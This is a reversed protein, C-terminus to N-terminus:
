RKQTIQKTRGQGTQSQRQAKFVAKRAERDPTAKTQQPKASAREKEWRANFAARDPGNARHPAPRLAPKPQDKKVMQSGNGTTKAPAPRNASATNFSPQASRAYNIKGSTTQGTKPPTSM